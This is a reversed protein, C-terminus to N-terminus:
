VSPVSRTQDICDFAMEWISEFAERTMATEKNEDACLIIFTKHGVEDIKEMISLPTKVKKEMISLPTKVEKLTVGIGLGKRRDYQSVAYQSMWM